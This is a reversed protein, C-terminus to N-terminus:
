DMGDNENKNEIFKVSFVIEELRGEVKEDLLLLKAHYNVDAAYTECLAQIGKRALEVAHKLKKILQQNRLHALREERTTVETKEEEITTLTHDAVNFVADFVAHLLRLTAERSDGNWFRTLAATIWGPSTDQISINLPKGAGCIKQGPKLISLIKLSGLLVDIDESNTQLM